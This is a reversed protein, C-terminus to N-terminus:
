KRLRFLRNYAMSFLTKRDANKIDEAQRDSRAVIIQTQGIADATIKAEEPTPAGTVATKDHWVVWLILALVLVIFVLAAVAWIM